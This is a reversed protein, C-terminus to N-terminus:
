PTKTASTTDDAHEPQLKGLKWRRSNHHKKVLFSGPMSVQCRHAPSRLRQWFFVSYHWPKGFIDWNQHGLCASFSSLPLVSQFSSAESMWGCIGGFWANMYCVICVYFISVVFGENLMMSFIFQGLAHLIGTYKILWLAVSIQNIIFVCFVLTQTWLLFPFLFM